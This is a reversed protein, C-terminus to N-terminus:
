SVSRGGPCMPASPENSGALPEPNSARPPDSDPHMAGGHYRAYETSAAATALPRVKVPPPASACSTVLLFGASLMAFEM